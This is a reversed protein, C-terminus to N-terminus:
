VSRIDCDVVNYVTSDNSQLRCAPSQAVNGRVGGGDCVVQIRTNEIKKGCGVHAIAAQVCCKSCFFFFHAVRPGESVM